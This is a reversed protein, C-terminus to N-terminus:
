PLRENSRSHERQCTEGRSEAAQIEIDQMQSNIRNETDNVRVLRESYYFALLRQQM